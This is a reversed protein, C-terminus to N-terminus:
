GEDDDDDDWEQWADTDQFDHDASYHTRIGDPSELYVERGRPHNNKIYRKALAENEDSFLVPHTDMGQVFKRVKFKTPKPRVRAARAPPAGPNKVDPNSTVEVM